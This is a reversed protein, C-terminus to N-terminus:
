NCWNTNSIGQQVILIGDASLEIRYFIHTMSKSRDELKLTRYNPDLSSMLSLRVVHKAVGFRRCLVFCDTSRLSITPFKRYQANTEFAAYITGGHAQTDPRIPIFCRVFHLVVRAKFSNFTQASYVNAPGFLVDVQEDQHMRSSPIRFLWYYAEVIISNAQLYDVPIVYVAVSIAVVTADVETFLHEKHLLKLVRSTLALALYAFWVTRSFYLFAIFLTPWDVIQTARVMAIGTYEMSMWVDFTLAVSVIPNLLIIATPDGIVIDYSWSSDPRPFSHGLSAVTAHLQACHHYYSAWMQWAVYFSVVCRYGFKIWLWTYYRPLEFTFTLTYVGADNTGLLDNGMSFWLCQQGVRTGLFKGYQCTGVSAWQSNNARHNAAAFECVVQQMNGGYFILGPLGLLFRICNTTPTTYRMDLAVRVVDTRYKSDVYYSTGRPLTSRNFRRQMEPMYTAVYDSYNAYVPDSTADGQWPLQESLYAKMPMAIINFYMIFSVVVSVKNWHVDFSQRVLLGAPGPNVQSPKRLKALQPSAFSQSLPRVIQNVVYRSPEPADRIALADNSCNCDLSQLPSLRIKEHLKDNYFCLLFCDAARLTGGLAVLDGDHDYKGTRLVAFLARNKLNNYRFSAYATPRKPVVKIPRYYTIGFGYMLPMSGMLLMYFVAVIFVEIAEDRNSVICELLYQYVALNFAVNSGLWTLLPGYLAVVLALVTPDVQAFVHEKHRRKLVAATFCIAAYAIWVVRSLYLFSLLLLPIDENQSSRVIAVGLTDASIWIDLLFITSVYKDALVIATPDGMVVEYAWSNQRLIDRRHGHVLLVHELDAYHRYYDRWMLHVVYTTLAGRLGLKLWLWMPYSYIHLVYTLTYTGSANVRKLGDGVSLWICQRGLKIGLMQTHTCTGRGAWDVDVISRNAAAFACLLSRMASGYYITGPMGRLFEHLCEQPPTPPHPRLVQRLVQVNHRTDLYFASGAPLSSATYKEQLTALATVNFETFNSPVASIQPDVNWPFSESLYAKMPMSALNIAMVLSIALASRNRHIRPRKARRVLKAGPGADHNLVKTM